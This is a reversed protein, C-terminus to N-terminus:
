RKAAVITVKWNNARCLREVEDKKLFDGPTFEVSDTVQEIRYILKNDSEQTLKITKTKM